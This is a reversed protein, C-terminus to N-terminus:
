RSTAGRVKGMVHHGYNEERRTTRGGGGKETRSRETCSNRTKRLTCGKLKTLEGRHRKRALGPARKKAKHNGYGDGKRRRALHYGVISKKRWGGRHTKKRLNRERGGKGSQTPKEEHGEAKGNKTEVNNGKAPLQHPEKNVYMGRKYKRQIKKERKRKL